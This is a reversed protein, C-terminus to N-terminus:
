GGRRAGASLAAKARATNGEAPKVGRAFSGLHGNVDLRLLEMLEDVRLRLDLLERRAEGEGLSREPVLLPAIQEEAVHGGVNPPTPALRVADGLDRVRAVLAVPHCVVGLTAQEDAHLDRAREYAHIGVASSAAALHESGMVVAFLQVARVVHDDRVVTRDVEAIRPVSAHGDEADLALTLEPELADVPGGRAAAIRLQEDVIELLRVTQTERGVFRQEVDVVRRARVDADEVPLRVPRDSVTPHKELVDARAHDLLADGVPHFAVLAAVDVDSSGSSDPHDAGLGLQEAHDLDRLVDAVQVPAALFPAVQVHRARGRQVSDRHLHRPIPEAVHRSSSVTLSVSRMSTSGPRAARIMWSRWFSTIASPPANASDPAGCCAFSCFTTSFTLCSASAHRAAPM